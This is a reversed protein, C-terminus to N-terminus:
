FHFKAKLKDIRMYKNMMHLLFGLWTLPDDFSFLQDCMNRGFFKFFPPRTKKLFGVGTSMLWLIELFFNRCYIGTTYNNIVPIEKGFALNVFLNAFDVGSVFVIKAGATVRPNIELIKPTNDRPDVIFDIDAPGRWKLSELLRRTIDTIDPHVVTVNASSTGAEVPFIRSKEVVVCVKMKGDNDVLAEAMFQNREVVPIYEQVILAGYKENLLPFKSILENSNDIRTVGIAGVGGVPKVIVPYDLSDKVIQLNESNLAFTKPCPFSNRMCFNMLNLKNAGKIFVDHEPSVVRSYKSIKEKNESIIEATIDSLGIVIDVRNNEIFELMSNKFAERNKSYDPWILKKSPYRSFYCENFVANSVLITYYGAKAFAKLFPLSQRGADLLLINIKKNNNKTHRKM